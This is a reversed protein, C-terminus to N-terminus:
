GSPYLERMLRFQSDVASAKVLFMEWHQDKFAGGQILAALNNLGQNLSLISLLLFTDAGNGTDVCDPGHVHEPEPEADTFFRPKDTVTV